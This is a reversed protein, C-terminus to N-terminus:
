KLKKFYTIKKSETAGASNKFQLLGENRVGKDTSIGLDFIQFQNEYCFRYMGDVLLVTPSLSRFDPNDAPLFYYLIKPNIKVGIACAVLEERKRVTFKKYSDNDSYVIRKFDERTLLFPIKYFSRSKLIFDYFEDANSKEESRFEFGEDLCKKLKRKFSERAIVRLSEGEVNIQQNIDETEISFGSELYAAHIKESIERSYGQPAQVIRLVPFDKKQFFESVKWLLQNL